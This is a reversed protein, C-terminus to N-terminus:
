SSAYICFLALSQEIKMLDINNSSPTSMDVALGLIDLLRRMFGALVSLRYYLQYFHHHIMYSM